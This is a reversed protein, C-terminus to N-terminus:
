TDKGIPARTTSLKLVMVTQIQNFGDITTAWLGLWVTSLKIILTSSQERSLQQHRLSEWRRLRRPHSRHYHRRIRRNVALLLDRRGMMALPVATKEVLLPRMPRRAKAIELQVRKDQSRPPSLVKGQRSLVERRIKERPIMLLPCLRQIMGNRVKAMTELLQRKLQRKPMPHSKACLGPSLLFICASAILVLWLRSSSTTNLM